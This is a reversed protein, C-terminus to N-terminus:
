PKRLLVADQHNYIARELYRLVDFYASWERHIYEQTHFTTQYFDPLKDLKLRGTAGTLFMFGYSHIRSQYSSALKNICYEGHVTLIIIAGPKTIRQLERLWAHQSEEDLHTFVSIAYILDFTNDAFPLPPQYGNTSWRIHPLYKKGWSLQESDIDTGYFQCSTPTDQFNRMVRGSGCGFDLVHEFSYIDREVIACLDRINQALIKGVQLFSEKDLSGSVRYRLKAPPVLMYAPNYRDTWDRLRAIALKSQFVLYKYVYYSTYIPKIAKLSERDIM